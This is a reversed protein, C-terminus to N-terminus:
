VEYGFVEQECTELLERDTESLTHGSEVKSRLASIRRQRMIADARERGLCKASLPVKVPDVAIGTGKKMENTQCYWRIAESEDCARVKKPVLHALSTDGEKIRPIVEFEYGGNDGIYAQEKPSYRLGAGDRIRDAEERLRDIEEKQQATTATQAALAEEAAKLRELLNDGNSAVPKSQQNKESM